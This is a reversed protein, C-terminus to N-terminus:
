PQPAPKYTELSFFSLASEVSVLPEQGLSESLDREFSAGNGPGVGVVACVRQVVSSM